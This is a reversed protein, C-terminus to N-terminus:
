RTRIAVITESLFDPRPPLGPVVDASTARQRVGKIGVLATEVANMGKANARALEGVFVTPAPGASCKQHVQRGDM